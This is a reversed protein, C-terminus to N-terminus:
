QSTRCRILVVVSRPSRRGTADLVRLEPIWLRRGVRLRKGAVARRSRRMARVRSRLLKSPRVGLAVVLEAKSQIPSDVDTNAAVYITLAKELNRFV